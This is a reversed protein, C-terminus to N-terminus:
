AACLPSLAYCRNRLNGTRNQAVWAVADFQDLQFIKEPVGLVLAFGKLDSPEMTTTGKLRSTVTPRSMGLQDALASTTWNLFRAVAAVTEGRHAWRQREEDMAATVEARTAM